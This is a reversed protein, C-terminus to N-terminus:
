NEIKLIKRLNRSFLKVPKVFIKTKIFRPKNRFFFMLYDKKPMKIQWYPGYLHNIIKQSNNPITFTGLNKTELKRFPFLDLNDFYLWYRKKHQVPGRFSKLIVKKSNLTEYFYFDVLCVSDKYKYQGQLFYKSQNINLEQNIELKSNKFINIIKQKDEIHILFDIDDDGKILNKNRYIGLLTGFFVAYQVVDNLKSVTFNFCESLSELTLDQKAM